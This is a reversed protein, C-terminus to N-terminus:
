FYEFGSNEPKGNKFSEMEEDGFCNWKMKYSFPDKGDSKPVENEKKYVFLDLQM